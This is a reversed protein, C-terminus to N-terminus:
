HDNIPSDAEGGYKKHKWYTGYRQKGKLVKHAHRPRLGQAVCSSQASNPLHKSSKCMAKTPIWEDLEQPTIFEYIRM